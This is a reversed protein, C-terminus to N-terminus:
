EFWGFVLTSEKLYFFKVGRWNEQGLLQKKNEIESPSAWGPDFELEFTPQEQARAQIMVAPVQSVFDQDSAIYTGTYRYYDYETATCSIVPNYPVDNLTHSAKMYSDTRNFFRHFRPEDVSQGSTANATLDVQYWEGDLKVANWTHGVDPSDNLIGSYRLTEVGLLRMIYQFSKAFGECTARGEVLAGYMSYKDPADKSYEVHSYLWDHVAVEMEFPTMASNLPLKAITQDIAAQGNAVWAAAEAMDQDSPLTFEGDSNLKALLEKGDITYLPRIEFVGNRDTGQYRTKPFWFIDPNNRELIEFVTHSDQDGQESQWYSDVPIRLELNTIGDLLQYYLETQVQDLEYYKLHDAALAEEPASPESTPSEVSPSTAQVPTEGAEPVPNVPGAQNCASFSFALALALAVCAPKKM